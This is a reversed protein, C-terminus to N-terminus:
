PTPPEALPPPAPPPSAAATAMAVLHRRRALFVLAGVPLSLSLLWPAYPGGKSFGIGFLQVNLIRYDIAGNTWNFTLGGFGCLVFLIWMWKRRRLPTMACRVLAYVMLAIEGAVALLMLWHLAGKDGIRLRHIERLDGPLPELHLTEVVTESAARRIIFDALVFGSGDHLQYELRARRVGTRADTVVQAGILTAEQPTGRDLVGRLKAFMEDSASERGPPDLLARARDRDGSRMLDLYGRAFTDEDAAFKHLSEQWSCGCLAVAVFALPQNRSGRRNKTGRAL